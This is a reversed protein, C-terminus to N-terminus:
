RLPSGKYLYHKRFATLLARLAPRGFCGLKTHHVWINRNIYSVKELSIGRSESQPCWVSRRCEPGPHCFRLAVPLSAFSLLGVVGALAVCIPMAPCGCDHRLCHPNSIIVSDLPGRKLIRQLLKCKLLSKLYVLRISGCCIIGGSLLSRVGAPMPHVGSQVVWPASLVLSGHHGRVAAVSCSDSRARRNPLVRRRPLHERRQQAGDAAGRLRPAALYWPAM